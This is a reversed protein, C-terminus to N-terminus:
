GSLEQLRRLHLLVVKATTAKYNEIQTKLASNGKYIDFQIAILNTAEVFFNQSHVHAMGMASELADPSLNAVGVVGAHSYWCFLSYLERYRIIENNGILKARDPLPRDMWNLPAKTRNPWHAELESQFKAENTPNDVFIREHKGINPDTIGQSVLENVLKKAASFRAIFTFAKFKALLTPDRILDVADLYLEYLCRACHLSVQFDQKKNLRMLSEMILCMRYYTGALADELETRHSGLQMVVNRVPVAAQLLAGSGAFIAEVKQHTTLNSDELAKLIDTVMQQESRPIVTLNKRDDDV